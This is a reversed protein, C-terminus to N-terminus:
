QVAFFMQVGVHSHEGKHYVAILTFKRSCYVPVPVWNLFFSANQTNTHMYIHDNLPYLSVILQYVILWRLRNHLFFTYLLLSLLLM